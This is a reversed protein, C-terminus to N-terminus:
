VEKKSLKNDWEGFDYNIEKDRRMIPSNLKSRDRQNNLKSVNYPPDALVMDICKDPLTKMLELCDVNYIRNLEMM